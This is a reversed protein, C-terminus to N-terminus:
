FLIMAIIISASTELEGLQGRQWVAIIGRATTASTNRKGTGNCLGCVFGGVEGSGKCDPCTSSM